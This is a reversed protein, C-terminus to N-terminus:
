TITVEPLDYPALGWDPGNFQPIHPRRRELALALDRLDADTLVPIGRSALREYLQLSHEPTFASGAAQEIHFLVEDQGLEVFSFGAAHAQFLLLSDLNWSHVEWEPYGRLEDWGERDIMTFDGCAPLHVRPM